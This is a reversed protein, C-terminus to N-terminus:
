DCAGLLLNPVAQAVIVVFFMASLLIGCGAMVRERALPGGAGGPWVKGTANWECWALLGSGAVLVLAFIAVLFLALKNNFECAWPALAFNAEFSLLWVVPGALIGTWLALDRNM